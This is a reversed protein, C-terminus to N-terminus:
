KKKDEAERRGLEKADEIRMGDVLGKLKELETTMLALADQTGKKDSVYRAFYGMGACMAGFIACIAGIWGPTM